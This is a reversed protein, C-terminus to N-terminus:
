VLCANEYLTWLSSNTYALILRPVHFPEQPHVRILISVYLKLLTANEGTFFFCFCFSYSIRHIM